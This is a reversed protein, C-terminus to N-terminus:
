PLLFCPQRLHLINLLLLSGSICKLVVQGRWGSYEEDGGCFLPLEQPTGSSDPSNM